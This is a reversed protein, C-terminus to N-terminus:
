KKLLPFPKGLHVPVTMRLHCTPLLAPMYPPFNFIDETLNTLTGGTSLIGLVRQMEENELIEHSRMRIKEM